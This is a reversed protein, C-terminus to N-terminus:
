ALNQQMILFIKILKKTCSCPTRSFLENQTAIDKKSSWSNFSNHYGKWKVYIRDDKRKVKDVRFEKPNTKHLEKEYFTAAIDEGNLDSIVYTWLLANKLKKIVFVKQSWNSIYIEPFINKYKSLKVHDGVKFRKAVFSKGEKHSSYM